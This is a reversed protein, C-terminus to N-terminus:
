KDTGTFYALWAGSDYGYDRDTLYKLSKKAQWAIAALSAVLLSCIAITRM